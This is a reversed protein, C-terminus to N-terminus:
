RRRAGESAMRRAVGERASVVFEKCLAPNVFPSPAGGDRPTSDRAALRDWLSSADPHPTLLVDCPLHELASLGHEFDKEAAPYTKSRTFFFDDASAATQSDAYLMDVCRAGECSRWTWSTGGPTHGPTFHATLALSGVHVTEGDAIVRVSSAPPFPNLIGYQPDQNDSEGRGIVAASWPSAAVEAGSARQLAAIGGAHDFHAHSNLILKVDEVRFGLARIRALIGPASAPLAGDILVHGQPSTVLISALGRPGVYYTNGYVRFPPQPTNWEACRSCRAAPYNVRVTDSSQAGVSAFAPGAAVALTLWGFRVSRMVFSVFRGLFRSGDRRGGAARSRPTKLARANRRALAEYIRADLMESFPM